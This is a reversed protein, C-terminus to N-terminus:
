AGADGTRRNRADGVRCIAPEAFGEARLWRLCIAQERSSLPRLSVIQLSEPRDSNENVYATIWTGQNWRLDATITAGAPIVAYHAHWLASNARLARAALREVAVLVLLLGITALLLPDNM